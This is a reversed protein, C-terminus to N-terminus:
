LTPLDIEGHMNKWFLSILRETTNFKKESLNIMLVLFTSWHLIESVEMSDWWILWVIVEHSGLSLSYLYSKLVHWFFQNDWILQFQGSKRRIPQALTCRIPWAATGGSQDQWLTDQYTSSSAEQNNTWGSHRRISQVSICIVLYLDIEGLKFNISFPSWDGWTYKKKFQSILRETTNFKNESLNIVFVLSTSRHLIESVELSDWWRLWVIVEHSLFIM